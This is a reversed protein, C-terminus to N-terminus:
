RFAEYLAVFPLLTIFAILFIVGVMIIAALYALFWEVIKDTM